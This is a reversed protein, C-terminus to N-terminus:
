REFTEPEFLDVEVIKAAMRPAHYIATYYSETTESFMYWAITGNNAMYIFDRAESITTFPGELRGRGSYKSLDVWLRVIYATSKSLM